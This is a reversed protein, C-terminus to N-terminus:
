ATATPIHTAMIRDVTDHHQGPVKINMVRPLLPLRKFRITLLNPRLPQWAYSQMRRWPIVTLLLCIGNERIELGNLGMSLFYVAFSWCFLVKIIVEIPTTAGPFRILEGLLMWTMYAAFGMALLATWFILKNQLTKGLALLLSGATRKRFPWSLLWIGVGIAFLSYYADALNFHELRDLTGVTFAIAYFVFFLTLSFGTNTRLAIWDMRGDTSLYGTGVKVAAIAVVVALGVSIWGITTM